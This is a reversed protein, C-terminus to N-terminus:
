NVLQKSISGQPARATALGFLASRARLVWQGLPSEGPLMVGGLGGRPYSKRNHSKKTVPIVQSAKLRKSNSPKSLAYFRLIKPRTNQM